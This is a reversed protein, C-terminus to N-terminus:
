RRRGRRAVEALLRRVAPVEAAAGLAAIPGGPEGGDLAVTVLAIEAAESGRLRWAFRRQLPALAARADDDRDACVLAGALRVRALLAKDSGTASLAVVAAELCGIADDPVSQTGGGPPRPAAGPWTPADSGATYLEALDALAEAEVDPAGVRRAGAVAGTLLALASAHRGLRLHGRGACADIRVGLDDRGGLHRRAEELLPDADRGLAYVSGSLGILALLRLYVIDLEAALAVARHYAGEAEAHRGDQALVWGLTYTLQCAVEPTAVRLGREILVYPDDLTHLALHVRVVIPSARRPDEPAMGLADASRDWLEILERCEELRTANV